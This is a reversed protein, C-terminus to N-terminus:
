HIYFKDNEKLDLMDIAKKLTEIRQSFSTHRHVDSGLYFKCGCERAIRFPRLVTDTENESFSMDSCNIEIGCGLRAAKKFLREMDDSSIMNLTSLYDEHSKNNLLGCALHAIGVKSFPLDMNLLAEFREIWLQARRENSAADEESITVGKFHMHTTPIIIFDFDNFRSKPLGLTFNKDIETECGFLFDIGKAQPLPKAKSIHEFDQPAYWTSAGPVQNDWYHDTLCIKSLGNDKAYQLIRETTQEPDRSCTSLNSHIHYDHDLKFKM